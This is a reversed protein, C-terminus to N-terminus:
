ARSFSQSVLEGDVLGYVSVPVLDGDVLRYANSEGAPPPDPADVQGTYNALLADAIYDGQYQYALATLHPNNNAGGLDEALHDALAGDPGLDLWLAGAEDAAEQSATRFDDAFEPHGASEWYPSCIIASKGHSTFTNAFYLAKAKYAASTNVDGNGQQDNIGDAYIGLVSSLAGPNTDVTAAAGSTSTPVLGAWAQVQHWPVDISKGGRASFNHLVVGANRTGEVLVSMRGSVLTVTVEHLGYTLGSFLRYGGAQWNGDATGGANNKTATTVRTTDGDITIDLVSPSDYLAWRVVVRTGYVAAEYAAAPINTSGTYNGVLNQGNTINNAPDTAYAGEPEGSVDTTDLVGNMVGHGGDPIGEAALRIRQQTVPSFFPLGDNRVQGAMTSDGKVVVQVLRHGARALAYDWADLEGAM